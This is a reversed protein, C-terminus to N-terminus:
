INQTKRHHRISRVLLQEIFTGIVAGLAAGFWGAIVFGIFAGGLFGIIKSLTLNEKLIKKLNKM